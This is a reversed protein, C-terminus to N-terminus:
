NTLVFPSVASAMWTVNGSDGPWNVSLSASLGSGAYLYSATFANGGLTGTIVLVMGNGQAPFTGSTANITASGNTVTGTGSGSGACATSPIGSGTVATSGNTLSM